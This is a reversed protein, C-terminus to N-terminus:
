RRSARGGRPTLVHVRDFCAVAFRVRVRGQRRMAVCMRVAVPM